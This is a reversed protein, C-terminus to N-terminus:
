SHKNIIEPHLLANYEGNKSLSYNYIAMIVDTVEKKESKDFFIIKDTKFGVLLGNQEGISSYPIMRFRRIWNSHVLIESIKEFNKDEKNKFITDIELPLINKILNYEVVIVPLKSIPDYLFNATDFLGLTQVEKGDIFISLATIIDEKSIKKQIFEWCFKISFFGIICTIILSNIHFNSIYFFGQPTIGGLNIMYILAFAVGGFIFSILYFIMFPRMFDKIKIPTFVVVIMLISLCIKMSLEDFIKMSPIYILITYVAGIISGCLIKIKNTKIKSFHATLWIIIYNMILNEIIIIDGYIYIM